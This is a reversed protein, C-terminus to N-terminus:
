RIPGGTDTRGAGTGTLGGQRHRVRLNNQVHKVGSVDAVIDEARHREDRNNVTGDLMVEGNSVRIEVDSADVFFDDTLRDCVDERIREDSRTYGRPGRGRHSGGPGGQGEQGMGRDRMPGLAERGDDQGRYPGRDFRGQEAM